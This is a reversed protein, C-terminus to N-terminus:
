RSRYTYIILFTLELINLFHFFSNNSIAYEPIKPNPKRIAGELM